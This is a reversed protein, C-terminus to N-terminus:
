SSAPVHKSWEQESPEEVKGGIHIRLRANCSECFYYTYSDAYRRGAEDVCTAKVWNRGRLAREDCKPCRRGLFRRGVWMLPMAVAYFPSCIIVILTDFVRYARGM